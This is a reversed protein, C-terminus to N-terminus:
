LLFHKIIQDIWQIDLPRDATETTILLNKWLYIGNRRYLEIRQLSDSTYGKKDVSGLHEWYITEGTQINKCTFDPHLIATGLVLKEEYHYPVCYHEFRSVIDGEAKSRVMLGPVVTSFILNEPHDCNKPYPANKWQELYENRKRIYTQVLDAAGPHMRLYRDAFPEQQLLAIEREIIAKERNADKLRNIAYDRLALSKALGIKDSSIYIEKKRKKIKKSQEHKEPEVTQNKLEVGCPRNKQISEPCSKEPIGPSAASDATEKSADEDTLYFYRYKGSPLKRCILNNNPASDIDM